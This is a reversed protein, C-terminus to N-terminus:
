TGEELSHSMVVLTHAAALFMCDICKHKFGSPERGSDRTTQLGRRTSRAVGAAVCALVVVRAHCRLAARM